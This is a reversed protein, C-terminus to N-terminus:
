ELKHTTFDLRNENAVNAYFYSTPPKLKPHDSEDMLYISNDICVFCITIGNNIHVFIYDDIASDSTICFHSVVEAWSLINLM